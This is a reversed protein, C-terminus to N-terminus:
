FEDFGDAPESTALEEQPLGLIASLQAQEEASLESYKRPEQLDATAEAMGAIMTPMMEMMKPMMESMASMVQPDTYILLSQSAYNSGTPTSFFANLEMLEAEPFRVAYARTLGERYSPEVENMLDTVLKVTVDSIRQSREAYAPDMIAMADGVTGEGMGDVKSFPIGSLKVLEAAPMELMSGMISDMMPEMTEEMMKAYTGTPFIKDVVLTAAPVRSEQEATLPEVDGFAASIADMARADESAQDQAIAPASLALVSLAAGITFTKLM